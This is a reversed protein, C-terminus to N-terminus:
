LCHAKYSAMRWIMPRDRSVVTSVGSVSTSLTIMNLISRVFSTAYEVLPSCLSIIGFSSSVRWWELRISYPLSANGYYSPPYWLWQAQNGVPSAWSPVASDVMRCCSEYTQFCWWWLCEKCWGPATVLNSSVLCHSYLGLSVTSYFQQADGPEAEDIKKQFNPILKQLEKLASAGCAFSNLLTMHSLLYYSKWTVQVWAAQDRIWQSWQVGWWSATWSGVAWTQGCATGSAQSPWFTLCAKTNWTGSDESKSHKSTLDFSIAQSPTVWPNKKEADKKNSKEALADHYARKWRAIEEDKEDELSVSPLWSLATANERSNSHSPGSSSCESNSPM